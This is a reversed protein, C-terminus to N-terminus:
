AVLSGSHIHSWHGACPRLLSPKAPLFQFTKSLKAVGQHKNGRGSLASALALNKRMQDNAVQKTVQFTSNLGLSGAFVWKLWSFQFYVNRNYSIILNKNMASKCNLIDQTYRPSQIITYSWRRQVIKQWIRLYTNTKEFRVLATKLGRLAWCCRAADGVDIFSWAGPPAPTCRHPHQQKMSGWAKEPSFIAVLYEECKCPWPFAFALQNHLVCPLLDFPVTYIYLEQM